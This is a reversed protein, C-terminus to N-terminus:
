KKKNIVFCKEGKNNPFYKKYELDVFDVLSFDHEKLKYCNYLTYENYAEHAEKKFLAIATNNVNIKVLRNLEDTYEKLTMTTLVHEKITNNKVFRVVLVVKNINKDFEYQMLSNDDLIEERIIIREQEEKITKKM